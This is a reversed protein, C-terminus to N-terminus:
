QSWLWFSSVFYFSLSQPDTQSNSIIFTFDLKTLLTTMLQGSCIRNFTFLGESCFPLFRILFADPEISQLFLVLVLELDLFLARFVADNFHSSSIGVEEREGLLVSVASPSDILCCCTVGCLEIM